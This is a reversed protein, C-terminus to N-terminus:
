KIGMVYNFVMDRNVKKQFYYVYGDILVSVDDWGIGTTDVGMRGNPSQLVLVYYQRGNIKCDDRNNEELIEVKGQKRLKRWNKMEENIEEKRAFCMDKLERNYFM